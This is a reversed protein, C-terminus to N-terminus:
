ALDIAVASSILNYSGGLFSGVLFIMFYYPVPNKGLFYNIVFTFLSSVLLMPAIIFARKGQVSDSLKGFIAGGCITGVDFM